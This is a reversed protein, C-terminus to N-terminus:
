GLSFHTLVLTMKPSGDKKKAPFPPRPPPPPQEFSLGLYLISLSGGLDNAQKRKGRFATGGSLDCGGADRQFGSIPPGKAM